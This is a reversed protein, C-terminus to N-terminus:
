PAVRILIENRRMFPLTWPPNYYANIPQGMVPTNEKALYNKLQQLHTDNNKQSILGSYRIVWYRAKPQEILKIKDLHPAPITRLSFHAPMVFSISWQGTEQGAQELVPATMAIKQSAGQANKNGGFIYGAIRRFGQQMATKKSGSVTTQALLLAPYQRLEISGKKEIVQYTPTKVKRMSLFYFLGYAAVLLLVLGLFWKM